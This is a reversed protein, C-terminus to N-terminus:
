KLAGQENEHQAYRKQITKKRRNRIYRGIFGAAVVLLPLVYQNFIKALAASLPDVKNLVNMSLGKSRMYCFDDNGNLSDFINLVFVAVPQGGEQDILAGSTIKSTGAVFVATKQVGSALNAESVLQTNQSGGATKASGTMEATGAKAPAESFASKFSGELLVALNHAAMNEKAPPFIYSPDLVTIEKQLWSEKSTKALVHAKVGSASAADNLTLAGSQLFLVYSLNSTVPQNKELGSQHIVPAFYFETKGKGTTSQSYCQKDMVYGEATEVGYANLLKELGTVNKEYAPPMGYYMAMQDQKEAFPDLFVALKGGKMVFQDIKYLEEEGFEQTPGNIILTSINSPIDEEATRIEKFTYMDSAYAALNAAGSRADQLSLEGHGSVYGIETSRSVLSALNEAINKELDDLGTIVYSGFLSQSMQLPILRFAGNYSLVLGIIGKGTSADKNNTWRILPIGYTDSLNEADAQAPKIYTYRIRNMNAKNVAQAAKSVSPEVSSFGQINFAALDESLYLHLDAQDKLGALASVANIMSTMKITLKYELGESGTIGDIVEIRDAYTLVLGMWVNKFGVENDKVEQIQIQSLRYSAAMSQSEPNNMDFSEWSFQRNAAGAYESLLDRVYQATNNYPSPLNSSFFVKVSLPQELTRVLQKSSQSLSYSKSKTTDIRFFSRIGVLNLLVLVIIFLLFDSQPGTLRKIFAKM